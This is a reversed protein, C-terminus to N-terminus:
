WPLFGLVPETILTLWFFSGKKLTPLSNFSITSMKYISILKTTSPPSNATGQVRFGSVRPQIEEQPSSITMITVRRLDPNSTVCCVTIFGTLDPLFCRYIIRNTDCSFRIKPKLCLVGHSNTRSLICPWSYTQIRSLLSRICKLRKKKEEITLIKAIVAKKQRLFM